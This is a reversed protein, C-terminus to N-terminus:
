VVLVVDVAGPAGGTGAGTARHDGQHLRALGLVDCGDLPREVQGLAEGIGVEAGDLLAMCRGRRSPGRRGGRGTGALAGLGGLGRGLGGTLTATGGRGVLVLWIAM